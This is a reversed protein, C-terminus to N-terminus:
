EFLWDQNQCSGARDSDGAAVFGLHSGPLDRTMLMKCIIAIIVSREV